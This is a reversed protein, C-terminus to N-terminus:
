ELSLYGEPLWIPYWVHDSLSNTLRIPAMNPNTASILYLDKGEDQKASTVIWAGDSSWSLDRGFIHDNTLQKLSFDDMRMLYIDSGTDGPLQSCIAIQTGDPSWKPSSDGGPTDVLETQDSGDANMINILVSPYSFHFSAFVIKSGDPSWDPSHDSTNNRTLRTQRTGDANMVYIEPPPGEYNPVPDRMSAFVIQSGDPSWAPHWDSASNFTLQTLDTGDNNIVYIEDDGDWRAVLAVQTGDPSWAIDSIGEIQSSWRTLGDGTANIFYWERKGAYDMLFIIQGLGTFPNTTASPIITPTRTPTATHTITSLPTASSTDNLSLTPTATPPNADEIQLFPNCALSILILVFIILRRKNM